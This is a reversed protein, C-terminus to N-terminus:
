RTLCVEHFVIKLRPSVMPLFQPNTFFIDIDKSERHRYYLMLATGGGFSWDEFSIGACELIEIAKRLLEKWDDAINEM